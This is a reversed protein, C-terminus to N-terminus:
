CTTASASAAWPASTVAVVRRAVLEASRPGRGRAPELEHLTERRLERREPGGRVLARGRRLSGLLLLRLARAPRSRARADIGRHRHLRRGRRRGPRRHRRHLEPGRGPAWAACSRVLVDGLVANRLHGIHAAKNPNINTHEVIVKHGVVSQAPVPDALGDRLLSAALTERRLYVNLYGAGEVRIERVFDPRTLEALLEGAIERPNRGLQKALGMAVPFALDGMQRSPPTLPSATTQLGYLREVAEEVSRSLQSQWQALM